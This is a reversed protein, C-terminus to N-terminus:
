DLAHEFPFFWSGNEAQVPAPADPNHDIATYHCILAPRLIEENKPLSGRHMLRGHWLLVDGKKPLFTEIKADRAAIEAECAPVVISETCIPWDSRAPIYSPLQKFLLDRRLAPWRHSGSVFQFPGSDPHIDELAMWAACYWSNVYGPNLYDDQHWARTTSVWGTLALNLGMPAGILHELMDTVPRFLALEAM